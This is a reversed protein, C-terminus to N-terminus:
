NLRKKLEEELGSVQQITRSIVKGDKDVLFLNPLAMIGYQTALPSELEGAQYLHVGPATNKQLFANADDVSRDLNVCVLALGKSSYTGVLANLVAFDSVTGKTMSSWFYVVVTKGRLQEISFAGGALLNGTLEM